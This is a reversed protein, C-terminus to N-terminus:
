SHWTNWWNSRRCTQDPPSNFLDQQGTRKKRFVGAAAKLWTAVLVKHCTEVGQNRDGQSGPTQPSSGHCPEQGPPSDGPSLSQGRGQLRLCPKEPRGTTCIDPHRRFTHGWGSCVTKVQNIHSAQGWYKSCHNKNVAVKDTKQRWSSFVSCLCLLHLVWGPDPGLFAPRWRGQPSGASAVGRGQLASKRGKEDERLGTEEHWNIHDALAHVEIGHNVGAPQNGDQVPAPPLGDGLDPGLVAAEQSADDGELIEDADADGRGGASTLGGGWQRWSRPVWNCSRVPEEWEMDQLSGRSIWPRWSWHCCQWTATSGQSWREAWGRTGQTYTPCQPGAQEDKGQHHTGAGGSSGLVYLGPKWADADGAVLPEQHGQKTQLTLVM